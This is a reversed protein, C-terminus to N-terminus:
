AGLKQHYVKTHYNNLRDIMRMFTIRDEHPMDAMVDEIAKPQSFVEFLKHRGKDSLILLKERKDAPNENEIVWEQQLLRKIIDIGTPIETMNMRCLSKKSINNRWGLTALFLFDELSKFGHNQLIPKFYFRIAKYLRIVIHAALGSGHPIAPYDGQLQAEEILPDEMFLAGSRKIPADPKKNLVWRAFDEVSSGANAEKFKEWQEILPIISNEKYM